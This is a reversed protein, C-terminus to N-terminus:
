IDVDLYKDTRRETLRQRLVSILLLVLGGYIGALVLKVLIPAEMFVRFGLVAAVVLGVAFLIWGITAIGLGPGASREGMSM